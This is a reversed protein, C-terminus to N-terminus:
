LAQIINAIELLEAKPFQELIKRKISEDDDKVTLIMLDISGQDDQVHLMPCVPIGRYSNYVDQNDIIMKVAKGGQILEDIMRKGLIGLGYVAIGDANKIQSVDSIEKGQIRKQNWEVLLEYYESRKILKKLESEIAMSWATKEIRRADSVPKDFINSFFDLLLEDDKYREANVGNILIPEKLMSIYKEDNCDLEKIKEMVEDIDNYKMCNVFARENFEEGIDPAGWYIPVTGAAWAEIIKETIYGEQSSNECAITFKYDQMFDLKNEVYYGLNNLYGGGSDVRKYENLRQFLQERYPNAASGNSVIFNCFKSKTKRKEIQMHKSCALEFERRSGDRFLYFPWRIYRDDCYIYNCDLAYDYLNFNPYENEGGVYVKICDYKLFEYTMFDGCFLYEPKDCIEVDWKQHLIGLIFRKIIGNDGVDAFQIKLKRM